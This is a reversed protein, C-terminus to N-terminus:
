CIRGRKGAAGHGPPDKGVWREDIPESALQYRSDASIRFRSCRNDLAGHVLYMNFILVDGLQYEATLWRGEMGKRLNVPDSTLWGNLGNATRAPDNPDNDCFSDVDRACYGHRLRENHHSGELVMLGGMALDIDSLPTWATYLQKTGRGMYVMDAHPPTGMGPAVCRLWTFDFHRVPGGLFGKFFNMMPGDERYLLMQLAQNNRALDPRFYTKTDAKSEAQQLPSGADLLGEAELEKLISLRAAAVEDNLLLKPLYLYGDAEMRERLQAVNGLADASSRLFGFSESRTDLPKGLSTLAPAYTMCLLHRFFWWLAMAFSALLKHTKAFVVLAVFEGIAPM